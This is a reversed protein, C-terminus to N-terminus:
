TEKAPEAMAMVMMIVMVMVMEMEEMVGGEDAKM